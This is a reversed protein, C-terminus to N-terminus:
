TSENQRKLEDRDRPLKEIAMDYRICEEEDHRM